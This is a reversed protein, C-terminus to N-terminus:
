YISPIARSFEAFFLLLKKKKKKTTKDFHYARLSVKRERRSENRVEKVCLWTGEEVGSDVWCLLVLACILGGSFPSALISAAVLWCCCFGCGRPIEDCPLKM